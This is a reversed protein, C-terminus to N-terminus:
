QFAAADLIEEWVPLSEDLLATRMYVHLYWLKKRDKIVYSEGTM